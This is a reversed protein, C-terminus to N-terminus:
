LKIDGTNAEIGDMVPMQIDMLILDYRNGKLKDFAELGNEALDISIGYKM